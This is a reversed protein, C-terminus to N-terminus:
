FKEALYASGSLIENLTLAAHPFVLFDNGIGRNKRESIKHNGFFLHFLDSFEYKM